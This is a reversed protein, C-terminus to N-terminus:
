LYIYHLIASLNNLAIKYLRHGRKFQSLWRRYINDSIEFQQNMLAVRALHAEDQVSDGGSKLVMEWAMQARVPLSKQEYLQGLLRYIPLPDLQGERLRLLVSEARDYQESKILLAAYDLLFQKEEELTLNLKLDARASNELVTNTAAQQDGKLTVCASLVPLFVGILFWRFVRLM